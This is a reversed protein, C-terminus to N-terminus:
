TLDLRSWAVNRPATDGRSRSAKVGQSQRSMRLRFEIAGTDRIGLPTKLKWESFSVHISGGADLSSGSRRAVFLFTVPRTTGHMNLSGTAPARYATNMLPDANLLIPEDLIFTAVPYRAADVMHTFGANPKGFIRISALDIRFSASSVAGRVVKIAGTLASSYGVIPTVRGFVSLESRFGATSGSGITWVGDTSTDREPARSAITAPVAQPIAGWPDGQGVGDRILATAGGAERTDASLRM